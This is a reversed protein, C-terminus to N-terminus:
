KKRDEKTGGAARTFFPIKAGEASLSECFLLILLLLCGLLSLLYAAPRALLSPSLVPKEDVAAVGAAFYGLFSAGDAGRLSSVSDPLTSIVATFGPDDSTPAVLSEGKVSPTCSADSLATFAREVADFDIEYIFPVNEPLAFITGDNGSGFTLSVRVTDGEYYNGLFLSATTLPADDGEEDGGRVYASGLTTGNASVM